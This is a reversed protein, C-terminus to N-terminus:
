EGTPSPAVTQSYGSAGILKAFLAPKVFSKVIPKVQLGPGDLPPVGIM